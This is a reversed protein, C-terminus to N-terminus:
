LKLKILDKPVKAVVKRVIQENYPRTTHADNELFIGLMGARMRLESVDLSSEYTEQDLKADYPNKVELDHRDGWVVLESGQVVLLFDVYHRHTELVGHVPYYVIEMAHMGHTLERRFSGVEQQMLGQHHTHTEELVSHLYAYLSELELTKGFLPELSDLKGFVAMNGGFVLFFYLLLIKIIKLLDLM